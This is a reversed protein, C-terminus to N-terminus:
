RRDPVCRADAPRFQRTREAPRRLHLLSVRPRHLPVARQSAKRGICAGDNQATDHACPAAICRPDHDPPGACRRHGAAHNRHRGAARQAPPGPRTSAQWQEIAEIAALLEPHRSTAQAARFIVYGIQAYDFEAALWGLAVDVLDNWRKHEALQRLRSVVLFKNEGASPSLLAWLREAEDDDHVFSALEFRKLLVTPLEKAEAPLGALLSAAREWEQERFYIDLRLIGIRIDEPAMRELITALRHAVEVHGAAFAQYAVDICTQFLRGSANFPAEELLVCAAEFDADLIHLRAQLETRAASNPPASGNALAHSLIAADRSRAVVELYTSMFGPNDPRARVANEGRIAADNHRGLHSLCLAMARDCWPEAYGGAELNELISLADAYNRATMLCEAIRLRDRPRAKDFRELLRFLKLSSARDNAEFALDALAAIVSFDEKGTPRSEFSAFHAAKEVADQIKNQAHLSRAWAMWAPAFTKDLQTAKEFHLVAIEHDNAAGASRGLKYHALHACTGSAIVADLAIRALARDGAKAAVDALGLLQAPNADEVSFQNHFGEVFASCRERTDNLVASIGGEARIYAAITPVPREQRKVAEM